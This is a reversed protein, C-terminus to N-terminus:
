MAFFERVVSSVRHEQSSAPLLSLSGGHINDRSIQSGLDPLASLSNFWILPPCGQELQEVVDQISRKQVVHMQLLRQEREIASM